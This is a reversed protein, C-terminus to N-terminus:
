IHNLYSIVDYFILREFINNLLFEGLSEIFLVNESYLLIERLEVERVFKEYLLSKCTKVKHELMAIFVKRSNLTFLNFSGLIKKM